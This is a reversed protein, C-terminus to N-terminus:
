WSGLDVSCGHQGAPAAALGLLLKRNFESRIVSAASATSPVDSLRSALSELARLSATTLMAASCGREIQRLLARGESGTRTESRYFSVHDFLVRASCLNILSAAGSQAALISCSHRCQKKVGASVNQICMRGFFYVRACHYPDMRNIVYM